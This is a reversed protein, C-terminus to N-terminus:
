VEDEDDRRQVGLESLCGDVVSSAALLYAVMDKKSKAWQAKQILEIAVKLQMRVYEETGLLLKAEQGLGLKRDNSM